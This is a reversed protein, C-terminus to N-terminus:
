SREVVLGKDWLSHQATGGRRVRESWVSEVSMVYPVTIIAHTTTETADAHRNGKWGKSSCPRIADM